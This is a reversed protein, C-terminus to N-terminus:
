EYTANRGALGDAVGFFTFKRSFDSHWLGSNTTTEMPNLTIGYRQAAPIIEFYKRIIFNYYRTMALQQERGVNASNVILGLEDAARMDLQAIKILKGTDKLKTFLSVISEENANQKKADYSYILENLQVSIGDIKTQNDSEWYKIMEILGTCKAENTLRSDNVFLRLGEGGYQRALQVAMRTYDKGLYDQWYFETDPRGEGTQLQGDNNMPESVVTWDKVYEGTAEMIGSIWRDLEVSILEEKQEPTKPISTGPLEEWKGPTGQPVLATMSANDIYVTGAYPGFNFILRSANEGTITTELKVETWGTTIDFAGFTGCGAYSTPNQMDAVINGAITGKIMFTLNVETGNPIAEAFDYAVQADWANAAVSPNTFELCNSGDVGTGQGHARSSGNGWSNWGDLNEEISGNEIFEKEEYVPEMYLSAKDIYVTGAYPGFNFILRSANEGTIATKLKVETWGTTIDFAGFTGCGAYSTPNQMDAVINGAITGKIMFTLEVEAGNPIAEAFDYAVQADWANAAVSPNTFELCNGGGVGTGQGHERSSGNGWSNWGDLNEEMDGNVIQEGYSTGEGPIWVTEGPIYDDKILDYLYVTRQNTTGVLAHGFISIGADNATTLLAPINGFDFAGNDIIVSGHAMGSVTVQDFDNSLLRFMVGKDTLDSISTNAGMMFNPNASRDVYTKLADYTNLFEIDVISYPKTVEFMLPQDDACSVLAFAAVCSLVINIIKKM